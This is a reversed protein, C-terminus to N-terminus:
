WGTWKATFDPRNKLESLTLDLATNNKDRMQKKLSFVLWILVLLIVGLGSLILATFLDM